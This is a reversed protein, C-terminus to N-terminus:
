GHTSKGRYRNVFACPSADLLSQHGQQRQLGGTSRLWKLHDRYALAASGVIGAAFCVVAGLVILPGIEAM